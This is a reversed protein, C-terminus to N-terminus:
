ENQPQFVRAFIWSVVRYYYVGFGVHLNGDDIYTRQYGSCAIKVFGGKSYSLCAAVITEKVNDIMSHVLMELLTQLFDAPPKERLIKLCLQFYPHRKPTFGPSSVEGDTAFKCRALRVQLLSEIKARLKFRIVRKHLRARRQVSWIEKWGVNRFESFDHQIVYCCHCPESVRQDGSNGEAETQLFGIKSVM